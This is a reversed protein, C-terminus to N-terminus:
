GCHVKARSTKVGDAGNACDAKPAPSGTELIFERILRPAVVM